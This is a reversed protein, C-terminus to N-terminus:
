PAPLAPIRSEPNPICVGLGFVERAPLGLVRSVRSARVMGFGSDRIGAKAGM